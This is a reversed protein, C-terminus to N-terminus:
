VSDISTHQPLIKKLAEKARKLRIGVTGTPVELIEAIEKYSLEELFYLILVERYKPALKELGEEVVRKMEAQERERPLPDEYVPHALMTDFDVLVLPNRSKKKLANVFANHAIRYVWPSFKQKTDFSQMNQYANVFVDQVIDEIDEQRSLFRRGYRLLKDEYREVLAGFSETDGQQVRVAVEEDTMHALTNEVQRYYM